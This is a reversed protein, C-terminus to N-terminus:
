AAPFPEHSYKRDLRQIKTYWENFNCDYDDEILLGRNLAISIELYRTPRLSGALRIVKTFEKRHDAADRFRDARRFFNLDWLSYRPNQMRDTSEEMALNVFALSDHNRQMIEDCQENLQVGSGKAIHHKLWRRYLPDVDLRDDTSNSISEIAQLARPWRSIVMPAGNLRHILELPQLIFRAMTPVHGDIQRRADFAIFELRIWLDQSYHEAMTRYRGTVFEHVHQRVTWFGRNIHLPNRDKWLPGEKRCDCYRSRIVDPNDDYTGNLNWTDIPTQFNPCEQKCKPQWDPSTFAKSSLRYYPSLQISVRLGRQEYCPCSSKCHHTPRSTNTCDGHAGPTAESIKFKHVPYADPIVRFNRFTGHENILMDCYSRKCLYMVERKIYKAIRLIQLGNDHVPCGFPCEGPTLPTLCPERRELITYSTTPPTGPTQFAPGNELLARYIRERLRWGIIEFYERAPLTSVAVTPIQPFVDAQSSCM